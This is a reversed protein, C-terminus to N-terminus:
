CCIFSIIWVCLNFQSIIIPIPYSPFNYIQWIVVVVVDASGAAAAVHIFLPSVTVIRKNLIEFTHHVATEYNMVNGLDVIFIKEPHIHPMMKSNANEIALAIKM